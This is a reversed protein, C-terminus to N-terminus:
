DSEDMSSLVPLQVAEPHELESMPMSHETSCRQWDGESFAGGSFRSMRPIFRNGGFTWIALTTSDSWERDGDPLVHLGINATRGPCEDSFRRNWIVEKTTEIDWSALDEVVYLQARGTDCRVEYICASGGGFKEEIYRAADRAVEGATLSRFNLYRTPWNSLWVLTGVVLLGFIVVTRSQKM